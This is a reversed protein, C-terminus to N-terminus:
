FGAEPDFVVRSFGGRAVAEQLFDPAGVALATNGRHVLRTRLRDSRLEVSSRRCEYRCPGGPRFKERSPLSLSGMMCSRGTAVFTLPVLLNAELGLDPFRLDSRASDVEVRTVGQARLFDRFAPLALDSARASPGPGRPDRLMRVLTRGLVPVLTPHRRRLLRLIGWDQFVVEAGAPLLAFLDSLRELDPDTVLPTVFTLALGAAPLTRSLSRVEAPSPIRRACFENGFYARRVPYPILAEHWGPPTPSGWRVAGEVQPIM